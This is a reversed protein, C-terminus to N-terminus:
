PHGLCQEVDASATHLALTALSGKPSGEATNQMLTPVKMHLMGPNSLCPRTSPPCFHNPM